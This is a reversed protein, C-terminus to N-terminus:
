RMNCNEVGRCRCRAKQREWGGDGESVSVAACLERRISMHLGCISSIQAFREWAIVIM